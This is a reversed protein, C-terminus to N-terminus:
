CWCLPDYAEPTMPVTLDAVDPEYDCHVYHDHDPTLDEAPFNDDRAPQGLTDRISADSESHMRIHTACHTEEDTLHRFTSQCAFTGNCKLTRANLASGNDTAPGFYHGLTMQNDPFSPATDHFM